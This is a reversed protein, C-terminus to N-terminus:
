LRDKIGLADLEDDLGPPLEQRASAGNRAEVILNLLLRDAAPNGLHGLIDLANVTFAGAHFRYTGFVLGDRYGYGGNLDFVCNLAVAGVEDPVPLADFYASHEMLDGYFEPTMLRSRLGTLAPGDKLIIEKHYLWDRDTVLGRHNSAFGLTTPLALWRITDAGSAKAGFAKDSLFVARAGRAIRGYLPRWRAATDGFTEGVLIVERDSGDGDAYDHLRAGRRELLARAPGDLGAVTLDGLDGPLSGPDAVTFSVAGAAANERADFAAELTYSGATLGPLTVTDDFVSYALPAQRGAEVRVSVTKAWAEGGPGRIRLTAPYDGASLANENALAVRVRLPAGSYVQIPNVFLCWRLPAWGAQLVPLMGEKFERFNNMVGEGAGWADNLGTLNYGNVKPNSRVISFLLARQLSDSRESDLLMDEISPYTADLGYTAWTRKLGEVDVRIWNWAYAGAPAGAKRMMREELLSNHTSGIGAESLFFPKTERALRSFAEAFKWSTPYVNYIHADGTGPHFAGVEEDPFTGTTVPRVPDEGGLYVNWTPSGPNSASGTRYQEDWRGSSLMVLRTDDIARLPKLLAEARHFANLSTTENLLGWIVLSPHNRDRRVVQELSIGIKSPDSVLLVPWATEHESYMLLGEEDAQDLQEPLAASTIFRFTNFGSKKLLPIDQKLYTMDGPTGQIHVPDYWNGHTSKLFIRQGNLCFYGDIIRFDRFGTRFAYTDQGTEPSSAGPWRSEVRVTYLFPDQLSWLHPRPVGVTLTHTSRGKPATLTAAQTGVTRGGRFEGVSASAEVQAPGDSANDVTVDLRMLGAGSDPRAFVDILRVLPKAELAVHQNIGGLFPSYVRVIVTNPRGSALGRTVDFEFPDDGGEHSGMSAGNLWVECRYRVAGFELHYRLGPKVNPTFVRAYWVLNSAKTLPDKNPWADTITGPVSLDRAGIDPFRSPEFWRENRGVDYTDQAVRWLGDLSRAQVGDITVASSASQARGASLASASVAVLAVVRGIQLISGSNM